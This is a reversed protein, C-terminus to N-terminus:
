HVTVSGFGPTPVTDHTLGVGLGVGLAVGVVAIAGVAVVGTVWKRTRKAAPPSAVVM